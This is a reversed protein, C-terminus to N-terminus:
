SCFFISFLNMTRSDLIAAGLLFDKTGTAQDDDSSHGSSGDGGGGGDGPLDPMVDDGEGSQRLESFLYWYLM